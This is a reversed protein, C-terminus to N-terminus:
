ITISRTYIDGGFGVPVLVRVDGSGDFSFIPNRTDEWAPHIAGDSGVAIGTYDGMFVSFGNADPFENSPPMSADTMRIPAHGIQTLTFDMFGTAEADAYSRDYFSVVVAKKSLATWQFWQDTLPTSAAV